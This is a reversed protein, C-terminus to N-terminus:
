SKVLRPQINHELLASWTPFKSESLFKFAEGYIKQRTSDNLTYINYNTIIANAINGEPLKEKVDTSLTSASASERDCAALDKINDFCVVTSATTPPLFQIIFRNFKTNGARM